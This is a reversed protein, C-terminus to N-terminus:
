NEGILDSDSGALEVLSPGTLRQVTWDNMGVAGISRYFRISPENWDLVSWEMRACGADVACRAMHRFLARGIGSGRHAPEVFVDEVYLGPRGTFTSYTFFWLAMGICRGDAEALAAYALPKSGSLAAAVDAETTVVEHLLKEYEALARILRLLEPADAAVAARLRFAPQTM